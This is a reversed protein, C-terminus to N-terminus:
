CGPLTARLWPLNTVVVKLPRWVGSLLDQNDSVWATAYSNGMHILCILLHVVDPPQNAMFFAGKLM